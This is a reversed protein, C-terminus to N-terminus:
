KASPSFTSAVASYLDTAKQSFFSMCTRASTQSEATDRPLNVELASPDNAVTSSTDKAATASTDKEKTAAPASSLADAANSTAPAKNAEPTNEIAAPKAAAKSGKSWNVLGTIIASGIAFLAFTAAFAAGAVALMSFGFALAPFYTVAAVAGGAVVFPATATVAIAAKNNSIFRGISNLFSM